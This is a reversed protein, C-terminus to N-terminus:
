RAVVHLPAQKALSDYFYEYHMELLYTIRSFTLLNCCVCVKIVNAYYRTAETLNFSFSGEYSPCDNRRAVYLGECLFNEVLKILYFTRRSSAPREEKRHFSM